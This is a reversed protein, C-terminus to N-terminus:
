NQFVITSPSNIIVYTLLLSQMRKNSKLYDYEIKINANNIDLLMYLDDSVNDARIVIGKFFRIFKEYSSVPDKGENDIIKSQFFGIDLPVRIRPSLRTQIKNREDIDLTEPDDDKFNISNLLNENDRNYDLVFRPLFSLACLVYKTNM